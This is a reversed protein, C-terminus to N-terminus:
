DERDAWVRIELLRQLEVDDFGVLDLNYDKSM